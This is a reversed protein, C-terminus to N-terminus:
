GWAVADHEAIAGVEEQISGVLEHSGSVLEATEMRVGEQQLKTIGLHPGIGGHCVLVHADSLDTPKNTSSPIHDDSRHHLRRSDCPVREVEDGAENDSTALVTSDGREDRGSM